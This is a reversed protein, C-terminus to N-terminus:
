PLVECRYDIGHRSFYESWVIHEGDRQTRKLLQAYSDPHVSTPDDTMIRDNAWWKANGRDIVCEVYLAYGAIRVPTIVISRQVNNYAAFNVDMVSFFPNGGPHNHLVTTGYLKVRVPAKVTHRTGTSRGVVNGAVDFVVMHEVGADRIEAEASRVSPLLATVPRPLALLILLVLLAALLTLRTM